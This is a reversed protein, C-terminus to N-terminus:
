RPTASSIGSSAPNHPEAVIQPDPTPLRRAWASIDPYAAAIAAAFRESLMQVPDYSM